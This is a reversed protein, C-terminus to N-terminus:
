GCRTTRDRRLVTIFDGLKQQPPAQPRWRGGGMPLWSRWSLGRRPRRAVSWPRIAPPPHGMGTARGGLPIPPSSLALGFAPPWPMGTLGIAGASSGPPFGPSDRLQSRPATRPALRSCSWALRPRPDRYRRRPRADIRSGPSEPWRSSWSRARFGPFSSAPHLGPVRDPVPPRGPVRVGAVVLGGDRQSRGPGQIAVARAPRSGKRGRDLLGIGEGGDDAHGVQLERQQKVRRRMGAMPPTSTRPPSLCRSTSPPARAPPAAARRQRRRPSGTRSRGPRARGRSGPHGADPGARAALGAPGAPRAARRRWRPGAPRSAPCRARASRRPRRPRAPGARPQVRRM